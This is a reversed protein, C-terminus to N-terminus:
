IFYMASAPLIWFAATSKSFFGDEKLRATCPHLLIHINNEKLPSRLPQAGCRLSLNIQLCCTLDKCHIIFQFLVRCFLFHLRLLKLKTQSCKKNSFGSLNKPAGPSCVATRIASLWNGRPRCHQILPTCALNDVGSFLNLYSHPLFTVGMGAAALRKATEMSKTTCRIDPKISLQELISDAVQRLKQRNAVMLFPEKELAKLDYISLPRYEPFAYKRDLALPM